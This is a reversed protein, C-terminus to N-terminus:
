DFCDTKNKLVTGTLKKEDGIECDNKLRYIM